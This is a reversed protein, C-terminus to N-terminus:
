PGSREAQSEVQAADARKRRSFIRTPGPPGPVREREEPTAAHRRLLELKLSEQGKEMAWRHNAAFVPRLLFSLRRLLPKQVEIDWDYTVNALPGDQALVWTGRGVFDGWAVFSFGNPYNAETVRLQWRLRYPLWGKTYLDLVAGVKQGDGQELEMVDLYVSPWWRALAPGDGLIDAVEEVRARFQWQTVFHYRSGPV